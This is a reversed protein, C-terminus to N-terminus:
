RLRVVTEGSREEVKILGVDALDTLLGRLWERGHEGDPAYDM